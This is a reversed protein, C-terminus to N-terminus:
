RDAGDILKVPASKYFTGSGPALASERDVIVISVSECIVAIFFSFTGERSIPFTLVFFQNCPLFFTARIYFDGDPIEVEGFLECGDYFAYAIHFFQSIDEADETDASVPITACLIAGILLLSLLKKM